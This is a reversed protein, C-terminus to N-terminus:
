IELFFGYASKLKGECAESIHSSSSAGVSRAASNVSEFERLIENSRKDIQLVSVKQPKHQISEPNIGSENMYWKKLESKLHPINYKICWKKVASDSVGYLEGFGWFGLDLIQKAYFLKESKKFQKKHNPLHSKVRQSEKFCKVCMNSSKMIIKGCKCRKVDHPVSRIKQGGIQINYGNPCITNLRSIWEIEKCDLEEFSCEEIVEFRFNNEGYKRIAKHIPSDYGIESKHNSKYKHQYWRSKIDISQGIYLKGNVLNTIKYIGVM